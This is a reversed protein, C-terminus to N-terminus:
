DSVYTNFICSVTNNLGSAVDEIMLTNNSGLVGNFNELICENGIHYTVNTISTISDVTENNSRLIFQSKSATYLFLAVAAWFMTTLIIFLWTFIPYFIVGPIYGIAKSAEQIIAISISIQKSFVILIIILILLLVTGVIGIVLWTEKQYEYWPANAAFFDRLPNTFQCGSAAFSETSNLFNVVTSSDTLGSTLSPINANGAVFCYYQFYAFGSITAILLLALIISVIIVIGAFYRMLIVYLYCFLVTVGAAGLIAPWVVQLDQLVGYVFVQANLFLAQT